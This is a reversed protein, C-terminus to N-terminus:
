PNSEGFEKVTSTLAPMDERAMDIMQEGEGALSIDKIWCDYESM